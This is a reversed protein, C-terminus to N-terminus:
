GLQWSMEANKFSFFQQDQRTAREAEFSVNKQRTTSNWSSWRVVLAVLFERKVLLFHLEAQNDVSFNEAVEPEDERTLM